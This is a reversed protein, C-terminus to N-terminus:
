TIILLHDGHRNILIFAGLASLDFLGNLLHAVLRQGPALLARSCKALQDGVAGEVQLTATPICIGVAAGPAAGFTGTARRASRSLYPPPGVKFLPYGVGDM